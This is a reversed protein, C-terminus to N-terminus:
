GAGGPGRPRRRAGRPRPHGGGARARGLNACPATDGSLVISGDDTDFRYAFSPFVPAHDVLVASVRVRDNEAVLIPEM